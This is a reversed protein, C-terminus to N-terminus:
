PAGRCKHRLVSSPRGDLQLLLGEDRRGVGVLGQLRGPSESQACNGVRDLCETGCEWIGRKECLVLTTNPYRKMGDDGKGLMRELLGTEPPM